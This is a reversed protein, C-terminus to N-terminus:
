RRLQFVVLAAIMVAGGLTQLPTIVEGLLLAAGITTLLPELNMFLATRFPGIRMTSLFVGLLAVTTGVGIGAVVAWGFVTQPPNWTGTLLAFLAFLATSSILSCWTILRADCGALLSRTLVLTTTRFLSAGLAAIVGALALGGPHAGLMLALGAFAVVAALAGRWTLTDLRTAAGILGTLLPYVFYTLIAIPVPMLEIAVFLLYVNGAFMVGFGLAIWTQRASMPAPRMGLRLWAYLLPIGIIGRITVMTLADAGSEFGWRILIDVIAFSSAGMVAPAIQALKSQAAAPSSAPPSQTVPRTM